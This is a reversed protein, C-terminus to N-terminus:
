LVELLTLFTPVLALAAFMGRAFWHFNLTVQPKVLGNINLILYYLFGTLLTKFITNKLIEAPSIIM